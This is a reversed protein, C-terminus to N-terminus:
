RRHIFKRLIRKEDQNLFIFLVAIAYVITIFIGKLILEGWNDAAFLRNMGFSVLLVVAFVPVIRLYTRFFFQKLDFHLVKHYIYCMTVTRIICSICIAISAGLSGAYRSAVITLPVSLAATIIFAVAQEKIRNTAIVTDRLIQQAYEIIDPFSLLVVCVYAIEYEEGMWLIMFERGISAFGLYILSIIILQIRGVRVALESLAAESRENGYLLRTVRALFLNGIASTFTYFYGDITSAIGYQTIAASDSVAGLISPVLNFILRTCISVVTTWISFGFIEKLLNHDKYKWHIRVKQRKALLLLKVAIALLGSVANVTVLSYLGGGFCLVIVILVVSGVKQILDCLKMAIFEEYASFIGNISIFPFSIVSYSAVMVYVIKFSEFEKPTLGKYIAGLFPYVAVLLAFIVASINLYLKAILGLVDYIGQTDKEAVKKTVFRTTASSLGFDVAFVNIVSIALTYLGYDSSGITRIMWPTYILGILVNIGISLYSIIAGWAIERTSKENM